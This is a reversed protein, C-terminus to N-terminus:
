RTYFQQRFKVVLPATEGDPVINIVFDLMEEHAIHFDSLYYIANGEDVLRVDFTRLQGTLNSAQIDIRARVPRGAPLLDNKFISLTLMGRNKSRVIDYAEAVQPQLVDTSFASYHVTYNGFVQPSAASALLPACLLSLLLATDFRHFLRRAM